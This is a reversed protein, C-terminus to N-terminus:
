VTEILTIEPGGGWARSPVTAKDIGEEIRELIDNQDHFANWWEEIGKGRGRYIATRLMKRLQNPENMHIGPPLGKARSAQLVAHYMCNGDGPTNRINYDVGLVTLISGDVSVKSNFFNSVRHM